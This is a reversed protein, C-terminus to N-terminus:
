LYTKGGWKDRSIDQFKISTGPFNTYNAIIINTPHCLSSRQDSSMVVHENVSMEFMHMQYQTAQRMM